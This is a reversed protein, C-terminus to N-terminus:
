INALHLDGHSHRVFGADRRADLTPGCIALEGRLQEILMEAVDGGLGAEPLGSALQDLLRTMGAAGGRERHLEAIVHLGSIEAALGEIQATDLAGRRVMLNFLSDQDFRGMEVLWDLVPGDGDLGLTCDAERTM